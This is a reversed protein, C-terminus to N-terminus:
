LAQLGKPVFDIIVFQEDFSIDQLKIHDFLRGMSMGKATGDETDKQAVKSFNLLIRNDPLLELMNAGPQNQAHNLATRIMFDIGMGGNYSIYINGNEDVQDVTLDLGINTTKFLVNVDLGIRVTHPGGYLVPVPRGAKRAIFDSIEQYTLRFQM